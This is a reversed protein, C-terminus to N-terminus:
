GQRRVQSVTKARKLKQGIWFSWLLLLLHIGAWGGVLVSYSNLGKMLYITVTWYIEAAVFMFFSFLGWWTGHLEYTIWCSWCHLLLGFAASITLILKITSHLYLEPPPAPKPPIVKKKRKKKAM